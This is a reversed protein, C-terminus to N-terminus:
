VFPDEMGVGVGPARNVIATLRHRLVAGELGKTRRIFDQHAAMLRARHKPNKTIM